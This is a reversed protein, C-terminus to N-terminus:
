SYDGSQELLSTSPEAPSEFCRSTPRLGAPLSNSSTHPTRRLSTPSTAQVHTPPFSPASSWPDAGAACDTWHELQQVRSPHTIEGPIQRTDGKPLGRSPHHSRRRHCCRHRSGRLSHERPALNVREGQTAHANARAGGPTRAGTPEVAEASRRQHPQAQRVASVRTSSTTQSM